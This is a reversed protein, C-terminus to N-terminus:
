NGKLTKHEFFHPGFSYGVQENQLRLLNDVKSELRRVTEELVEVKEQLLKLNKM